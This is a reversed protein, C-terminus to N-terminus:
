GQKLIQSYLRCRLRAVVREGVVGQSYSLQISVCLSIIISQISINVVLQTICVQITVRLFGAIIGAVTVVIAIIMYYNIQSMREEEDTITPDVLVDYANAVILPTLLNAAESGVVLLFSVFIM